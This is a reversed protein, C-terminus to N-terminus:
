VGYIKHKKIYELVNENLIFSNISLNNKLANRIQTSSVDLEEMPAIEYKLNFNALKKIQTKIDQERRKAIIIKFNEIIQEYDKWSEIQLFNDAGIILYIEDKKFIKKFHCLTEITYVRKKSQEYNSISVRNEDQTALKLMEVRHKFSVLDDKEYFDGVPVIIVKDVIQSKLLSELIETHVKHPPNFCGGFIGIKM